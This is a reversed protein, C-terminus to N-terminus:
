YSFRNCTLSFTVFLLPLFPLSVQSQGVTEGDKTLESLLDPLDDDASQQSTQTVLLASQSENDQSSAVSGGTASSTVATLESDEGASGTAVPRMATPTLSCFSVCFRM